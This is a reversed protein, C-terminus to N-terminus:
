RNDTNKHVDNKVKKPKDNIASVFYNGENDQIVVCRQGKRITNAAKANFVKMDDEGKEDIWISKDPRFVRELWELMGMYSDGNIVVTL